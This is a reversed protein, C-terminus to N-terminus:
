RATIRALEQEDVQLERALTRVTSGTQAMTQRVYDEYPVSEEWCDLFHNRLIGALGESPIRYGKRTAEKEGTSEPVGTVAVAGDVVTYRFDDVLPCSSFRVEAGAATYRWAIHIRDQFRPVLYRVAVGENRLKEIINIIQRTRKDDDGTPLRGTIWAFVEGRADIMADFVHIFYENRTLVKTARSVEEILRDRGRGERISMVLLIITAVLLVSELILLLTELHM